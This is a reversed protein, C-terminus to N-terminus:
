REAVMGLRGWEDPLYAPTFESYPIDLEACCFEWAADEDEGFEAEYVGDIEIVFGEDGRYCLGERADDSLDDVHFLRYYM